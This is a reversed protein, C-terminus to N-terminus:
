SDSSLLWYQVTDQDASVQTELSENAFSMTSVSLLALTILILKKM